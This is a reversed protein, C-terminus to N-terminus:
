VAARSREDLDALLEPLPRPHGLHFGQAGDVGLERLTDLLAPRDVHEATTRMGLGRAARVVADVLVRDRPTRDAQRVFEGAIKVSTFPLHKLYVFSGFGAGFDDLSFRCGAGILRDALRRAAELSTIAATETIEIGLRAPEVDAAHLTRVVHDGFLPDELSRSSVNVELCLGARRAAPAALTAVAQQVVWRDIRLILDTREVAPLFEDPGLPPQLGDRLRLLLEHCIVRGTALEVIPQADFGMRGRDLADRVRQLVSVRQVASDYHEPAFLRARNRGAGKADYLALDASALLVDVDRAPCLPAVGISATIRLAAGDALVPHRAVADCLQEAAALADTSEGGPLVVAFEDGGLRGLVADPEVSDKLLQALVRMVQDGVAHGRLDNIDKFNDIDLLLLAGAREDERQLREALHRSISRRNRLGTLPDHEALHHLEDQVRRQDTIDHATGLVRQPRGADDTVVEGHCEFWRETVEDALHMRHTYSFPEGTELARALTGEVLGIDDTHLLSRYSAYDLPEDAPIGFLTLLEQSWEVRQTALDWEWTGVRALAEVRALRRERHRVLEELEYRETVDRVEHLLLAGREPAPGTEHPLPRSSVALWRRSGDPRTWPLDPSSGGPAGAGAVLLAAPLGLHEAAANAWVVAGGRDTVLLGVSTAHAVAGPLGEAPDTV